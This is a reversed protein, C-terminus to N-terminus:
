VRLQKNFQRSKVLLHDRTDTQTVADVMPVKVTAKDPGRGNAERGVKLPSPSSQEDFHVEKIESLKVVTMKSKRTKSPSELEINNEPNRM